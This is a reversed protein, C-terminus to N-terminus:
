PPRAPRRTDGGDDALLETRHPTDPTLEGHASRWANLLKSWHGTLMPKRARPEDLSRPARQDLRQDFAARAAELHVLVHAGVGAGEVGRQLTASSCSTCTASCVSPRLSHRTPPPCGARARRGCWGRTGCRPSRRRARAWRASAPRRAWRSRSTAGVRRQREAAVREVLVVLHDEGGVPQVVVRVAVVVHHVVADAGAGHTGFTHQVVQADDADGGTSACPM